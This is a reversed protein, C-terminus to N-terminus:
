ATDVIRQQHLDRGAAPPEGVRRPPHLAAQLLKADAAHLRVNREQDLQDRLGVNRAPSHVVRNMSSVGSSNWNAARRSRAVCAAARVQALDITLPLGSTFSRGRAMRRSGAGTGANSGCCGVGGVARRCRSCPAQRRLLERLPDELLLRQQQGVRRKAVGMLRQQGRPQARVVQQRDGVGIRPEHRSSNESSIHPPAVNSVAIRNRLSHGQCRSASSRSRIGFM